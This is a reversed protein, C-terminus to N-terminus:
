VYVKILANTSNRRRQKMHHKLGIRKQDKLLRKLISPLLKFGLDYNLWEHKNSMSAVGMSYVSKFRAVKFHSILM